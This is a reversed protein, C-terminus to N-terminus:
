KGAAEAGEWPFVDRPLGPFKEILGSFYADDVPPSDEELPPVEAIVWVGECKNLLALFPEYHNRGDRSQPETEAWAWGDQLKLWKVVFVAEIGFNERLDARLTNMIAKRELSGVPPTVAGEAFVTGAAQILFMVALLLVIAKRMRKAEGTMLFAADLYASAAQFVTDLAV